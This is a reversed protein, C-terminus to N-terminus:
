FLGEIFYCIFVFVAPVLYVYLMKDDAIEVIRDIIYVKLLTLFIFFLYLYIFGLVFISILGIVSGLLPIDFQDIYTVIFMPIGFCAMVPLAFTFYYFAAIPKYPYSLSSWNNMSDWIESLFGYLPLGLVLAIVM